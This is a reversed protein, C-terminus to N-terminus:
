RGRERRLACIRLGDQILGHASTRSIGLQEAVNRITLGDFHYAIVARRQRDPMEAIASLVLEMEQRGALVADQLPAADAHSNVIHDVADSGDTKHRKRGRALDIALNRIARKLYGLPERVASPEVHQDMRIWADHVIDEAAGDDGSVRRAYDVLEQRHRSYLQSTSRDVALASCGRRM